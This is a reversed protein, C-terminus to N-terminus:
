VGEERDDVPRELLKLFEGYRSLDDFVVHAGTGRLADADFGGTAVAVATAGASTACEVDLPTDGVILTDQATITPAWPRARELAVTVLDNRELADEAYAGFAFYRWLDFYELKIRAAVSLNGTLLGVLVDDRKSLVGLLERVGPMVGKGPGPKHIEERLYDYYTQCFRDFQDTALPSRGAREIADNLILRDTRGQVPVGDFAGRVGLVTDFTRGFARVGAGGTLILTGDVDFLVLRHMAVM